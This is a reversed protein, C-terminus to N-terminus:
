PSEDTAITVVKTEEMRTAGVACSSRIQLAHSKDARIDMYSRKGADTFMMGSRAVVVATRVDTGSNYPLFNKNVRVIKFGMFSNVAGDM